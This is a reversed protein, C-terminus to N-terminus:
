HRPNTPQSGCFAWPVCDTGHSGASRAIDNPSVNRLRDPLPRLNFVKVLSLRFLNYFGYPLGLMSRANNVVAQADETSIGAKCRYIGLRYRQNHYAEIDREVVGQLIAELIRGDGTYIGIHSWTGQDFRAILRSIRSKMDITAIIDAPELISRFVVWRHEFEARTIKDLLPTRIPNSFFPLNNGTTLAVIGSSFLGFSPVNQTFFSEVNDIDTPSLTTMRIVTHPRRRILRLPTEAMGRNLRPHIVTGRRTVYGVKNFGTKEVRHWLRDFDRFLIISGRYEPHKNPVESMSCRTQM